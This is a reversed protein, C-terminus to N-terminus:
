TLILLNFGLVIVILSFEELIGYSVEFLGLVKWDFWKKEGDVVIL